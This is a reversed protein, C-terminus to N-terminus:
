PSVLTSGVSTQGGDHALAGAFGPPFDPSPDRELFGPHLRQNAPSVRIGAFPTKLRLGGIPDADNARGSVTPATTSHCPPAESRATLNNWTPRHDRRTPQTTLHHGRTAPQLRPHLAPDM